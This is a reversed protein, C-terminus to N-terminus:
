GALAAEAPRKVGEAGLVADQVDVALALCREGAGDPAM